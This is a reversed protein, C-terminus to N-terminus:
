DLYRVGGNEALSAEDWFSLADGRRLKAQANDEKQKVMALQDLVAQARTLPVVAVGDRDGVVIDGPGVPVGGCVVGLNIEGPGNRYGANPCWGRAFVPIEASLMGNVDRVLGDCVIGAAGARRASFAWLDGIVAATENGGCAIMIVDGPAVFDLIAMAALTDMPGCFATVAPGCFRMAPDLPKVSHHLCGRGASADAIFCTPIDRFQEILATPPREIKRRITIALPSGIM